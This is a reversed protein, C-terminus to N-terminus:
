TSILKNEHIDKPLFPFATEQKLMFSQLVNKSKDSDEENLAEAVGAIEGSFNGFSGEDRLIIGQHNNLGTDVEVFACKQDNNAMLKSKKYVNEQRYQFTFSAFPLVQNIAKQKHIAMIALYDHSIAQVKPPIKELKLIKNNCAKSRQQYQQLGKSSTFDHRGCYPCTLQSAM